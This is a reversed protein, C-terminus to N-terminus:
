TLVLVHPCCANHECCLAEAISCFPDFQAELCWGEAQPSFRLSCSHLMLLLQCHCAAGAMSQLTQLGSLVSSKSCKHTM